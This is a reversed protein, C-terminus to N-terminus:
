NDESGSAGRGLARKMPNAADAAAMMARREDKTKSAMIARWAAPQAKRAPAMRAEKQEPTLSAIYAKLKASQQARREPSMPGFKKGKNSGPEGKHKGFIAQRQEESLSASYARQKEAQKQRHEESGRITVGNEHRKKQRYTNYSKKGAARYEERSEFRQLPPLGVDERRKTWAALRKEVTNKSQKLGTLSKSIQERQEQPIPRGTFAKRLKERYEDTIVRGHTGEGGATLNTLDAGQSKFHAIWHRERDCWNAGVSVTEL